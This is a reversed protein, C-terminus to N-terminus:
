FVLPEDASKETSDSSKADTKIPINETAIPILFKAGRGGEIGYLSKEAKKLQRFALNYKTMLAVKAKNWWKEPWSVLRHEYRERFDDKIEAQIAEFTPTEHQWRPYQAQFLYPNKQYLRWRQEAIEHEPPDERLKRPVRRQLENIIENKSVIPSENQRVIREYAQIVIEEYHVQNKSKHSGNGSIATATTQGHLTIVDTRQMGSTIDRDIQVAARNEKLRLQGATWGDVWYRFIVHQYHVGDEAGLSKAMERYEREADAQVSGSLARAQQSQTQSRNILTTAAFLYATKNAPIPSMGWLKALFRVSITVAYATITGNSDRIAESPRARVTSRIHELLTILLARNTTTDHKKTAKRKKDLLRTLNPYDRLAEPDELLSIVRNIKLCYEDITLSHRTKGM